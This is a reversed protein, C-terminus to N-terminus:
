EGERGGGAKEVRYLRWRSPKTVPALGRRPLRHNHDYPSGNVLVYDFYAIDDERAWESYWDLRPTWPSPAPKRDAVLGTSHRSFPYAPEAGKFAQAYAYMQLFPHYPFDATQKVYDLQLLRAARPLRNLCEAFGAMDERNFRTWQFAAVLFFVAAAGAAAARRIGPNLRPAPLALLLLIFCPAVWRGALCITNKITDPAFFAIAALLGAAALLDPDITRRLERRNSVLAFGAWALVLLFLVAAAAGPSGGFAQDLFWRNFLKEFPRVYWVARADLGSSAQYAAFGRFWFLSALGVPLLSAGRIVLARFPLRRLLSVLGLWVAGAAFWLIHSGYLLVSGLILPGVERWSSYAPRRTTLLIWFIFFPFGVQFNLFGWYFSVNFLLVSALVASEVPRKKRAAVAFVASIWAAIMFLLAARGLFELSVMKALPCLFGYVLTNPAGWLLVHPGSPDAATQIALLAQAVHQALDTVPPFPTIAVPIAALLFVFAAAIVYGRNGTRENMGNTKEGAACPRGM